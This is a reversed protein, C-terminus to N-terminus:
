RKIFYIFLELHVMVVENILLYHEVVEVEAEEMAQPPHMAMLLIVEVM